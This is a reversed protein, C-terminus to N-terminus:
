GQGKALFRQYAAPDDVAFKGGPDKHAIRVAQTGNNDFLETKDFLGMHAAKDYTGSVASHIERIVSEPVLRGSKRARASARRVAEDTDVTVYRGETAYGHRKADNVKGALMSIDSDGTGDLTYNLRKDQAQRMAQKAIHSSEEHTFMAARQDRAAVMQGYEPLQAKIADPDIHATDEHNGKMVTSKGSAPGGGLFTAVPHQQPKHGALIGDIIQKHLAARAPTFTGDARQYKEMTDKPAAQASVTEPHHTFRGHDDRWHARATASATAHAKARSAASLDLQGSITTGAMQASDTGATGGYRAHQPKQDRGAGSTIEDLGALHGAEAPYNDAFHTRLKGAHEVAGALHKEAHDANFAWEEDSAPETMAQAHRLGHTEEHLTTELLHATTATKADDSVAKALEAATALGIVQAGIMTNAYAIGRSKGGLPFRAVEDDGRHVSLHTFTVPTAPVPDPLPEGPEVYAITVHPKWDKHESASLDELAARLREAGPLVVGAWAPVKGDSGDSPPFTGIGGVTGSLPGPMAAAAERARECARAFAENGVDAGLYAVTIHFDTVGDPVPAITGAPIDLSIMGSRPNLEYGRALGITQKVQELEAAEAPYHARINAALGHTADLASQLHRAIHGSHQQRVKGTSERAAQMRQTARALHRTTDDVLHATLMPADDGDDPEADDAALGLAQASITAPRPDNRREILEHAVELWNVKAPDFGEGAIVALEGRPILQEHLTDAVTHPNDPQARAVAMAQDWVDPHAFLWRVVLMTEHTSWGQGTYGPVHVGPAGPADAIQETITV